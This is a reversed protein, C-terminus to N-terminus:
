CCGAKKPREPVPETLTIGGTAPRPIEARPLRKALDVFLENVNLNAKASTEWFHLGNEEAYAQLIWVLQEMPKSFEAVIGVIPLAFVSPRVQAEEVTVARSEGLDAKNGALAMVLNPSGQRQLEKVWNKAKQFSEANTIDYVIVAAAAGRRV